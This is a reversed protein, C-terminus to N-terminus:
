KKSPKKSLAAIALKAQSRGSADIQLAAYLEDLFASFRGVDAGGDLRTNRTPPAGTLGEYHQAALYAVRAAAGKPPTGRQGKLDAEAYAMRFVTRRLETPLKTWLFPDSLLVDLLSKSSKKAQALKKRVFARSITHPPNRGAWVIERAINPILFSYPITGERQSPVAFKRLVAEVARQQEDFPPRTM